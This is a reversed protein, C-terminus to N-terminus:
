TATDSTDQETSDTLESVDENRSSALGQEGTMHAGTDEPQQKVSQLLQARCHLFQYLQMLERRSANKRAHEM